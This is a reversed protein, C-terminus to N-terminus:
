QPLVIAMETYFWLKVTESKMLLVLGNVMAPILNGLFMDQLNHLMLIAIIGDQAPEIDETILLLKYKAKITVALNHVPILFMKPFGVLKQSM